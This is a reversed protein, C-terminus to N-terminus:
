QCGLDTVKAQRCWLVKREFLSSDLHHSPHRWLNQLYAVRVVRMRQIHQFLLLADTPNPARPALLRLAVGFCRVDVAECQHHVLEHGLSRRVAFALEREPSLELLQDDFAVSRWQLQDVLANRSECLQQWQPPM